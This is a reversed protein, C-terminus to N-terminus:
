QVVGCGVEDCGHVLEMLPCIWGKAKSWTNVSITESITEVLYQLISLNIWSVPPLSAVWHKPLHDGFVFRLIAADKAGLRHISYGRTIAHSLLNQGRLAAKKRTRVLLSSATTSNSAETSFTETERLLSGEEKGAVVNEKGISDKEGSGWWRTSIRSLGKSPFGIKFDDAPPAAVAVKQKQLTQGPLGMPRVHSGPTVNMPLHASQQGPKQAPAKGNVPTKGHAHM